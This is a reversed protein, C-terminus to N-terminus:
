DFALADISEIQLSQRELGDPTGFGAESAAGNNEKM